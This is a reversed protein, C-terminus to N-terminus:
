TSCRAPGSEITTAILYGSGPSFARRSSLREGVYAEDDGTAFAGRAVAADVPAAPPPPVDADLSNPNSPGQTRRGIVPAAGEDVEVAPPCASVTIRVRLEPGEARVDAWM